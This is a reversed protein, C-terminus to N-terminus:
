DNLTINKRPPVVADVPLRGNPGEILRLVVGSIVGPAIVPLTVRFFTELPSAGLGLSARVLNQNFGQLTALVTGPQGHPDLCEAIAGALVPLRTDKLAYFAPVVVRVGAFFLLGAALTALASSGAVSTGSAM